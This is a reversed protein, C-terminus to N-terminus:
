QRLRPFEPAEVPPPRDPGQPFRMLLYIQLHSHNQYVREALRAIERCSSSSHLSSVFLSAAAAARLTPAVLRRVAFRDFQMVAVRGRGALADGSGAGGDGPVRTLLKELRCPFSGSMGFAGFGDSLCDGTVGAVPPPAASGWAVRRGEQPLRSPQRRAQLDQRPRGRRWARRRGTRRMGAFGLLAM